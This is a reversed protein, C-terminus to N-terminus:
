CEGIVRVEPELEVETERLVTERVIDMLELVDRCTAGGANVVFGAHKPSVQAGGVRRGKLGCQEILAAAYGTAPRKFTSGASPMDIPQKEQRRATLEKMKAKITQPDGPALRMYVHTIVKDTGTFASHRYSFDLEGGSLQGPVGNADMYQVATVVDKMEGGYAGANMYVAGGLTGPIGRAFELGTLGCEYASVCAAALSNGAGAHFTVGDKMVSIGQFIGGGLVIAVGSYGRDGVLLNSGRGLVFNPLELRTLTKRVEALQGMTEVTVLRDAPGGIRFTTYQALPVGTLSECGLEATLKDLEEYKLANKETDM